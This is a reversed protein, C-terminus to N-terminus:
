SSEIMLLVSMGILSYLRGEDACDELGNREVSEASAIDLTVISMSGRRIERSLSFSFDLAGTRM